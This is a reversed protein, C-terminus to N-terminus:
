LLLFPLWSEFFSVFFSPQHLSELCFFLSQFCKSIDLVISRPLPFYFFYTRTM